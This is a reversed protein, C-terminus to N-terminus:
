VSAANPGDTTAAARRVASADALCMADAHLHLMSVPWRTSILGKRLYNVAEEKGEGTALLLARRAALLEALGLTMGHTVPNSAGTLMAHAASQPALVTVHATAPLSEGPENLGLHGNIGVGLIVLDIGGLRAIERSVRDCEAQPDGCLPHMGLLNQPAIGLPDLLAKSLFAECTAENEPPLGVWEDLKIWIVRSVDLRQEKVMEVFLAYAGRPSFGTALAVKADPVLLVTQALVRACRESLAEYSAVWEM